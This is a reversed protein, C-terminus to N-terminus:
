RHPCISVRVPGVFEQKQNAETDNPYWVIIAQDPCDGSTRTWKAVQARFEQTPLGLIDSIGGNAWYVPLGSLAPVVSTDYLSPGVILWSSQAIQPLQQLSSVFSSDYRLYNHPNLNRWSSLFTGPLSLLVATVLVFIGKRGWKQLGTALFYVLPLQAYHLFQVSNWVIGKQLFLMPALVSGLLLFAFFIDVRSSLARKPLWWLGILKTGFNGVFFTTIGTLWHIGLRPWNKTQGFLQRHIEWTPYNLRDGAEYLSRIFWGPAWFFPFGLLSPSSALIAAALAGGGVASAALLQDRTKRWEIFSAFLLAPIVLVAAYVKIGALAGTLIVLAIWRLKKEMLLWAILPLLGLSLLLQLNLAYNTPQDLWFVSELKGAQPFFWGALWHFGSGLVLLTTAAKAFKQSGLVSRFFNWASAAWLGALLVPALWFSLLELSLNSSKHVGAMFLDTFYHYGRLVEGAVVPNEPPVARALFKMLALHWFADSAGYKQLVLEGGFDPVRQLFVFSALLVSCILSFILGYWDFSDKAIRMGRRKIWWLAGGFLMPLSWQAPMGLRGATFLWLASAAIGALAYWAMRDFRYRDENLMAAGVLSTLWLVSLGGLLSILFDM